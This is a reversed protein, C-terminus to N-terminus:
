EENEGVSLGLAAAFGAIQNKKAEDSEFAAFARGAAAQAEDQKGLVTYSRILRQWGPLDDPNERLRADLQAVMGSIMEQRDGASMSEANRMTEADLAPASAQPASAVQPEGYRSLGESAAARWEPRATEDSVLDNWRALAQEVNGDHVDALAMFFRARSDGPEMELAKGFAERAAASMEGNALMYEAQGLGSRRAASDGNLKIAQEFATQADKARGMRLYMPGLVEWGRGDEPNTQLHTEAREILEEVSLNSLGSQAMQSDREELRASLPQAPMGPSGTMSYLVAASAPVFLAAVLVVRGAGAALAPAAQEKKAAEEAALLRRGIEARAYEAQEADIVGREFDADVERMQDKYLTVDFAHDAATQGPMRGRVAPWLVIALMVITLLASLLAFIM